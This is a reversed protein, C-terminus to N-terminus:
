PKSAKVALAAILQRNQERLHQVEERLAELEGKAEGMAHTINGIAKVADLTDSERSM